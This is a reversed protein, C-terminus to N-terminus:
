RALVFPTSRTPDGFMLSLPWAVKFDQAHGWSLIGDFDVGLRIIDGAGKLDLIDTGGRGGIGGVLKIDAFPIRGMVAYGRKGKMSAGTIEALQRGLPDASLDDLRAGWVNEGPLPYGQAYTQGARDHFRYKYLRPAGDRTFGLGFQEEEAWFEVGDYMPMEGPQDADFHMGECAVVFYVYLSRGDHAVAGMATGTKFTQWLDDPMACHKFNPVPLAVIQPIVGAKVWANWNGDVKMEPIKALVLTKALGKGQVVEALPIRGPAIGTPQWQMPASTKRISEVGDVRIRNLRGVADDEVYAGIKGDARLYPSVSHSCDIWGCTYNTPWSWNGTALRLGDADFLDVQGSLIKTALVYTSKGDSIASAWLYNGGSSRSFWLPKRRADFKGVGTAGRFFVPICEDFQATMGGFYIDDNTRDVSLGADTFAMKQRTTETGPRILVPHAWDFTPRHGADLGLFPIRRVTPINRKDGAMFVQVISGDAAFASAPGALPAEARSLNVALRPNLPDTVDVLQMGAEIPWYAVFQRGGLTVVEMPNGLARDKMGRPAEVLWRWAGTKPDVRFVGLASIVYESKVPHVRVTDVFDSVIENLVKGTYPNMIRTRYYECVVLRGDKLFCAGRPMRWYDTSVPVFEGPARTRGMSLTVKGSFDLVAVREAAQDVVCLRDKGASLYKPTALRSSFQRETKGSPSLALIREGSLVWLNGATDAAIDAVKSVLLDATKRGTSLDILRVVNTGAVAVCATNGALALGVASVNKDAKEAASLVEYFEGGSPMKAREGPLALRILRVAAGKGTLAYCDDQPTTALAIFESDLLGVAFTPQGSASYRRLPYLGEDYYCSMMFGGDGLPAVRNANDANYNGAANGNDGFHGDDVVQVDHSVVKAVYKGAPAVDGVDDLGDWYLEAVGAADALLMRILKGGENYIGASQRAGGPAVQIALRAWGAAPVPQPYEYAGACVHGDRMAFPVGDRDPIAGDEASAIGIHRGPLGGPWTIEASPHLDFNDPDKFAPTVYVSHRDQGSAANWEYIRAQAPVEGWSGCTGSIANFDSTWASSSIGDAVMNSNNAALLCNRIQGQGCNLILMGASTSGAVTTQLVKSAVSERFYLGVACRSVVCSRVVVARSTNVAAGRTLRDFTCREITVNRCDDLRLGQGPGAFTLGRITLNALRRFLIAADSANDATIIVPGPADGTLQGNEDGVVAMQTGDASFREAILTSATNYKGPGIILSDGNDLAQGGRLITKFATQPTKGDADDNGQTRIFYTGAALFQTPVCTLAAAVIIRSLLPNM